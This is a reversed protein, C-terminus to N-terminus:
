RAADPLGDATTSAWVDADGSEEWEQWAEEYAAQLEPNGLLRIARQVAASRSTLGAARAYTDLAAVDSESLSVSVKVQAM